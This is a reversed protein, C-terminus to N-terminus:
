EGEINQGATVSGILRPVSLSGITDCLGLWRPLVCLPSLCGRAPSLTGRHLRPLVARHLDRDVAVACAAFRTVQQLDSQGAGMSGAHGVCVAHDPEQILEASFAPLEDVDLAAREVELPRRLESATSCDPYTDQEIGLMAVRVLVGAGCAPSVLAGAMGLSPRLGPMPASGSCSSSSRGCASGSTVASPSHSLRRPGAGTPPVCSSVSTSSSSRNWAVSLQFRQSHLTNRHAVRERRLHKM